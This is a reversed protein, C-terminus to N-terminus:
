SLEVRRVLEGGLAGGALGEGQLNSKLMLILSGFVSDVAAGGASCSSGWAEM